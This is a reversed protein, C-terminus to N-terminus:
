MWWYSSTFRDRNTGRSSQGVGTGSHFRDSQAASARGAVSGARSGPSRSTSPRQRRRVSSRLPGPDSLSADFSRLRHELLEAGQKDRYGGYTSKESVSGFGDLGSSVDFTYTATM